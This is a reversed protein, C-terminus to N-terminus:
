NLFFLFFFLFKGSWKSGVVSLPVANDPSWNMMEDISGTVFIKEGSVTEAVVNFTVQVVLPRNSHCVAPIKLGKAGWRAPKIGKRAAFATLASAYSWTLHVASTPAGTEKSYQESLSGDEPTYQANIALFGDAYQRIAQILTAYTRASSPHVGPKTSPLFQQFFPLSIDTITISCQAEWVILSDYLQEAM